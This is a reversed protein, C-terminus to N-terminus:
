RCPMPPPPDVPVDEETFLYFFYLRAFVHSWLEVFCVIGPLIHLMQMADHMM